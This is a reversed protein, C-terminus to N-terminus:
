NDFTKELYDIYEMYREKLDSKLESIDANEVWPSELHEHYDFSNDYNKCEMATSHLPIIYYEDHVNIEITLNVGYCIGGDADKYRVLGKDPVFVPFDITSNRMYGFVSKKDDTRLFSMSEMDADYIVGDKLLDCSGVYDESFLHKEVNFVKRKVIHYRSQKTEEGDYEDYFLKIMKLASEFTKCLYREDYSNPTEKIHLEYICTEDNKKFEELVSKKWEILDCIYEKLKEDNTYDLIMELLNLREDFNRAFRYAIFMLKKASFRCKEKIIADKLDRSYICEIVAQKLESYTM